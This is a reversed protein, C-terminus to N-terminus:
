FVEQRDNQKAFSWIIFCVHCLQGGCTCLFAFNGWSRGAAVTTVSTMRRIIWNDTIWPLVHQLSFTAFHDCAALNFSVSNNM